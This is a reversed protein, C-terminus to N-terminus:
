IAGVEDGAAVREDGHAQRAADARRGDPDGQVAGVDGALECLPRVSAVLAQDRAQLQAGVAERGFCGAAATLHRDDVVGVAAGHEGARLHPRPNAGVRGRGVRLAVRRRGVFVFVLVGESAPEFAIVRAVRRLGRADRAGRGVIPLRDGVDDADLGTILVAVLILDRDEELRALRPRRPRRLRLEVVLQQDGVAGAAPDFAFATASWRHDVFGRQGFAERDHRRREVVRPVVAVDDGLGLGQDHGLLVQDLLVARQAVRDAGAARASREHLLLDGVGVRADVLPDQGLAREGVVPRGALLQDVVVEVARVELVRRLPAGPDDPCRRLDGRDLAM